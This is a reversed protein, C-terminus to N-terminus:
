GVICVAGDAGRGSVFDQNGLAKARIRSQDAERTALKVVVIAREVVGPANGAVADEGGAGAPEAGAARDDEGPARRGDVVRDADGAACDVDVVRGVEVAGDGDASAGDGGV